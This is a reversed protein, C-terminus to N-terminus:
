ELYELELLRWKRCGNDFNPEYNVYLQLEQALCEEGSRNCDGELVANNGKNRLMYIEDEPTLVISWLALQYVNRARLLDPEEISVVHYENYEHVLGGMTTFKFRYPTWGLIKPGTMHRFIANYENDTTIEWKMHINQHDPPGLLYVPPKFKIGGVDDHLPAAFNTMRISAEGQNFTTRDDVGDLALGSNIIQWCSILKGKNKFLNHYLTYTQARGEILRDILVKAMRDMEDMRPKRPTEEIVQCARTYLIKLAIVSELCSRLFLFTSRCFELLSIGQKSYKEQILFTKYRFPLSMHEAVTTQDPDGGLMAMKLKTLLSDQVGTEIDNVTKRFRTKHEQHWVQDPETLIKAQSIIENSVTAFRDIYSQVDMLYQHKLAEDLRDLVMDFKQDLKKLLGAYDPKEEKTIEDLIAEKVQTFIMAGIASATFIAMM